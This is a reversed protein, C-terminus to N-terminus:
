AATRGPRDGVLELVGGGDVAASREAEVPRNISGSDRGASLVIATIVTTEATPVGEEEGQEHEDVRTLLVSGIPTLLMEACYM